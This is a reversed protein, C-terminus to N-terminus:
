AARVIQPQHTIVAAEIRPGYSGGWLDIKTLGLAQTMDRVDDAIAAANYWRLDVGKAQYSKLCAILGDRDADSPPGADTLEVGPCDMSPDSEGGGRQDFLIVDQDVAMLDPRRSLARLINGAGSTLAGGPGGHFMVMPPLVQGSADKYPTSAKLIVVAVGIRRDTSGDRAEDVSLTGCRVERVGAPWDTPCPADTFVPAAAKAPPALATLGSVAALVALIRLIM